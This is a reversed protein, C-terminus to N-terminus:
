SSWTEIDNRTYGCVTPKGTTGSSAHIRVIREMPVAFMGFPYNQRLDEKSTLPFKAIDEVVACTTLICAPPTLGLRTTRCRTYARRLVDGMRALQLARLEDVSATEIAEVGGM